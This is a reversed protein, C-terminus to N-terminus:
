SQVALKTGPYLNEFRQEFKSPPLNALAPFTTPKSDENLGTEHLQSTVLWLKSMSLRDPISAVNKWGIVREARESTVAFM